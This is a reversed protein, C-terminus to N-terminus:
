RYMAKVAGFSAPSVAAGGNGLDVQYAKRVIFDERVVVWMTTGNSSPYGDGAVAGYRYDMTPYPGSFTFSAVLSGSGTYVLTPHIGQSKPNVIVYDGAQGAFNGTAALTGADSGANFSGVISGETTTRVVYNNYSGYYYNNRYALGDATAIPIPVSGLFAGTAVHYARLQTGGDLVVVYEAGAHSPCADVPDTAGTLTVTNLVSGAPTFRRLEASESGNGGDYIGYVYTGDRYMAAGVPYVNGSLSFNSLIDGPAAFCSAALGACIFIAAIGIRM